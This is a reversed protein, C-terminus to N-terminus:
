KNPNPYIGVSSNLECTIISITYNGHKDCHAKCQCVFVRGNISIHGESVTDILASIVTVQMHRELRTNGTHVEMSAGPTDIRGDCEVLVAGQFDSRQIIPQQGEGFERGVM